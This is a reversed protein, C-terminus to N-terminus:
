VRTDLRSVDKVNQRPVNKVYNQQCLPTEIWRLLLGPLPKRNGTRRAPGTRQLSGHFREVKGRTQPHAIGWWCLRVGQRMPWLSLHTRGSFSQWNWWPMGHDMLMAEPLGCSEFVRELQERVLNGDTKGVEQLALLYRSHDDIVSLPGTSQPWNKPGKFDMQWLENPRMREFLPHWDRNAVLDYRLLIQHVTSRTLKVGDRGLAVALKWAGSDPYLLRLAVVKEEQEWCTKAPSSRPGRSREAIGALGHKAYRKIWLGGAPRSIGFEARLVGLPKERLSAALVFRVRQDQVNMAKWAM